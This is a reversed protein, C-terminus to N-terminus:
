PKTDESPWLRASMVEILADNKNKFSYPCICLQIQVNTIFYM